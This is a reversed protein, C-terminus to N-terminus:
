QSARGVATVLPSRMGFPIDVGTFPPRVVYALEENVVPIIAAHDALLRELEQYREARRDPDVEAEAGPLLAAYEPDDWYSPYYGTGGDGIMFNHFLWPDPTPATGSLMIMEYPQGERYADTVERFATAELTTLRVEVGLNERWMSQITQALLSEETSARLVLEMPPFGEGGPFGADALLQRAEEVTGDPRIGTTHGPVGHPIAGYAPEMMGSFVQEALLDRDIALYLARRVREDGFPDTRHDMFVAYLRPIRAFHLMDGYQASNRIRELETSPVIAFDVEEAEFLTLGQGTPDPVLQVDVPLTAPEGWYHENPEFRVFQDHRWEVLKLPGNSVIHDPDTWQDGHVELVHRPVPRFGMAMSINALAQGSPEALTLQLTNDDIAEVGVQDPDDIEGSNYAEANDIIYLLDASPSATEPELATTIAYVYDGATVPTGDSWKAEPRLAFTYVLGDDSVELEAAGLYEVEGDAGLEILGEFLNRSMWLSPGAVLRPDISDTPELEAYRFADVGPDDANQQASCAAAVTLVLGAALGVCGNKVHGSLAGWRRLDPQRILTIDAEQYM